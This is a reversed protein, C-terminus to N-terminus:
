NLVVHNVDPRTFLQMSTSIASISNIIIDHYSQVYCTPFIISQLGSPGPKPSYEGKFIPVLTSFGSFYSSSSM